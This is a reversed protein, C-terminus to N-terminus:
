PAVPRNKRNKNGDVTRAIKPRLNEPHEGTLRGRYTAYGGNIIKIDKTM